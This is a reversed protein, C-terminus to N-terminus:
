NAGDTDSMLEMRRARQLRAVFREYTILGNYRRRNASFTAFDLEFGDDYDLVLGRNVVIGIGFDEDVTICRAPNHLCFNAFAKYTEGCWEGAKRERTTTEATEPNCDHVVLFGDENLLRPLAKLAQDVQPRVHMPDFFILDFRKGAYRALLEGTTLIKDGPYAAGVALARETFSKPQDDAFLHEPIYAIAKEECAIEDDVLECLFKNYELYSRLGFRQILQNIVDAKRVRSLKKLLTRGAEFDAHSNVANALVAKAEGIRGIKVLAVALGQIAVLNGPFRDVLARYLTVASRWQHRAALLAADGIHGWPHAPHRRRLEEFCAAAKDFESTQLLAQGLGVYGAPRDAHRQVLGQWHNVAEEWRQERHM